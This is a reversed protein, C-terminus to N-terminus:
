LEGATTGTPAATFVLQSAGAPTVDITGTTAMIPGNSVTITQPGVTKLVFESGAFEHSGEDGNFEYDAPLMAKDDTSSFQVTGVYNTKVNGFVDYATVVIPGTFPTGAVTTSPEGEIILHHLAAPNVTQVQEDPLLIADADSVTITPTGAEEDYYDFTGSSVGDAITISTIPNITTGTEYFYYKGPSASSALDVVYEGVLQPAGSEHQVEVTMTGSIGATLVLPDSTIKLRHARAIITYGEPDIPADDTGVGFSNSTTYASVKGDVEHGDAASDMLELRLIVTVTVGEPIPYGGPDASPIICPPVFDGTYTGFPNSDVLIEASKVDATDTGTYAVYVSTLTTGGEPGVIEFSLIPVNDGPKAYDPTLDEEARVNAVLSLMMLLAILIAFTRQKTRKSNPMRLKNM